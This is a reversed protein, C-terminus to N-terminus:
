NWPVFTWSSGHSLYSRKQNQDSPWGDLDSWCTNLQFQALINHTPIFFIRKSKSILIDFWHLLILQHDNITLKTLFLFNGSSIKQFLLDFTMESDTFDRKSKLHTQWFDHDFQSYFQFKSFLKNELHLTNLFMFNSLMFQSCFDKNIEPCETFPWLWSNEISFTKSEANPIFQWCYIQKKRKPDIQYYKNTEAQLIWSSWVFITNANCTKMLFFM